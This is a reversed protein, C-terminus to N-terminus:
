MPYGMGTLNWWELLAHIYTKIIFNNEKNTLNNNIFVNNANNYLAFTIRLAANVTDPGNLVLGKKISM